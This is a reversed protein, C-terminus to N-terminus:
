TATIVKNRGTNKAQYLAEDARKLWHNIAEDPLRLAVGVSIKVDIIGQKSDFREQAVEKRIKEALTNAQEDYTEPLVICFEEGGLRAVMDTSRVANKLLQALKVLVEDGSDHGYKDNISKFHDIDIMFFAAPIDSTMTGFFERLKRRNGLGTLPDNRAQEEADELRKSLQSMQQIQATMTDRMKKSASSLKEGAKIIDNRAERLIAQAEEPDSPLEKNLAEQVNRLEPSEDGVQDLVDDMAQVSGKLASTLLNFELRVKSTGQLHERLYREFASFNQSLDDTEPQPKGLLEFGRRVMTLASPLDQQAADIFIKRELLHSELKGWANDTTEADIMRKLIAGHEADFLIALMGIVKAYLAPAVTPTRQLDELLSLMRRLLSRYDTNKRDVALLAPRIIDLNNLLEAIVGDKRSM